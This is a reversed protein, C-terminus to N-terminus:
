KQLVSKCYKERLFDQTQVAITDSDNMISSWTLNANHSRITRSIVGFATDIM